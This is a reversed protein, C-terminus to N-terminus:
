NFGWGRSVPFCEFAQLRSNHRSLAPGRRYTSIRSPRRAGAATVRVRGGAPEFELMTGCPRCVKGYVVEGHGVIVVAMTLVDDYPVIQTSAM